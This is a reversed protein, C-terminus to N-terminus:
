GCDVTLVGEGAAIPLRIEFTGPQREVMPVTTGNWRASTAAGGVVALLVPTKSSRGTLRLRAHLANKTFVQELIWCDYGGSLTGPRFYAAFWSLIPSSLGGFQHWGAGRGSKVVFHEFCAGSTRVERDWAALATQAIKWALDGEGLDLLAKWFFWQHPMWVTGNWYGDVLYYPASQDVTTIGVDTWFIKPDRLREVFMQEQAPTCIGAVLPYIGDLGRNFNVGSEHLLPGIARGSDDHRVYSFWGTSEDWADRHLAEGLSSIDDLFEDVPENLIIAIGQLIKATRIIQATNIVPTVSKTLVTNRLFKQPPYDDWGGSNYFYDWSRLLGSRLNRMTSGEARGALFRHMRRAPGFFRRLLDIDQTRNWLAQLQYIQVPVPSGHFTFAADENPLSLYAALNDISRPPDLELLGLGIFGSDWTYLSDWWRGPTYHRIYKGRRRVPYVVNTAVTAALREVGYAYKEGASSHAPLVLGVPSSTSAAESELASLKARVSAENAGHCILARFERSESPALIIPRIFVNLYHREGGLDLRKRVHDHTFLPFDHDIQDTIWERVESDGDQWRLGYFGAVAAYRFILSTRDTSVIEPKYSLVPVEFTVSDKAEVPVLAIGNIEVESGGISEVTFQRSDRANLPVAVLNFDGNGTYAIEGAYLGSCHLRVTSGTIARLRFLAITNDSPFDSPVSYTARHGAVRGFDPGLATGNVHGDSRIGGWIEADDPLHRQPASENLLISQYSTADIWLAGEPLSVRSPRLPPKRYPGAEPFHLSSLTNLSLQQIQSTRNVVHVQLSVSSGTPIYTVDAYLTELGDLPFRLTYRGLDPTASWPQFGSDYTVMPVQHRRRYLGPFLSFDFRMGGSLDPLHSIGALHKSYPGWVPLRLDGYANPEVVAEPNSKTPGEASGSLRPCLVVTSTLLSVYRIFERRSTTPFGNM